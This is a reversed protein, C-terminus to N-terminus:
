LSIYNSEVPEWTLIEGDRTTAWIIERMIERMYNRSPHRRIRLAFFTAVDCPFITAKTWRCSCMGKSTPSTRITRRRRCISHRLSRSTSRRHTCPTLIFWKGTIKLRAIFLNQSPSKKAKSIQVKISVSFSHLLNPVCFAFQRADIHLQSKERAKKKSM